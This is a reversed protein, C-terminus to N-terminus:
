TTGRRKRVRATVGGPARGGRRRIRPALRWSAPPSLQSWGGFKFQGLPSHRRALTSDLYRTTLPSCFWYGCRSMRQTSTRRVTDGV